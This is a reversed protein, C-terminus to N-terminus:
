KNIKQRMERASIAAEQSQKVQLSDSLDRNPENELM